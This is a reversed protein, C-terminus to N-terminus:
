GAKEDITRRVSTMNEVLALEIGLKSLEEKYARAEILEHSLRSVDLMIITGVESGPGLIDRLMRGFEPRENFSASRDVYENALVLEHKIAYRRISSLQAALSAEAHEHASVRVYGVAENKSRTM